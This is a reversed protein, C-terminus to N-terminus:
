LLHPMRVRSQAVINQVDRRFVDDEVVFKARELKLAELRDPDVKAMRGDYYKPPKMYMDGSFHIEDISYISKYFKDFYDAGIGPRRSMRIYDPVRQEAAYESISKGAYIKKGVYGTVYSCTEPTVAGLVVDGKGWYDTLVQSTYLRGTPSNSVCVIDPLSLGFLIAHYHPRQTVTGYEGCMFYRFEYRKRLRKAFLQFDPHNLSPLIYPIYLSDDNYTFTAFWNEEHFLAEHQCRLSWERTRKMLCSACFGCGVLLGRGDPGKTPIRAPSTCPM